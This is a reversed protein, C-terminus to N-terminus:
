VKRWSCLYYYPGVNYDECLGDFHIYASGQNPFSKVEVHTEIIGQKLYSIIFKYDM